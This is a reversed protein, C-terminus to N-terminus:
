ILLVLSFISFFTGLWFKYNPVIEVSIELTDAIENTSNVLNLHISQKGFSIYRTSLTTEIQLESFPELSFSKSSFEVNIGIPTECEIRLVEKTNGFNEIKIKFKSSSGQTFKSDLLLSTLSLNHEKGIRLNYQTSIGLTPLNVFMSYNGALARNAIFKLIIDISSRHTLNKGSPIYTEIWLGFCNHVIELEIKEDTNGENSIQLVGECTGNWCVESPFKPIVIIRKIADTVFVFEISDKENLNTKSHLIVSFICKEGALANEPCTVLLTIESITQADISLETKNLSIDWASDNWALDLSSNSDFNHNFTYDYDSYPLIELFFDEKYNGFNNVILGYQRTEKPKIMFESNDKFNYEISFYPVIRVDIVFTTNRGTSYSCAYITIQTFSGAKIGKPPSINVYFESSASSILTFKNKSIELNWDKAFISYITYSDAFDGDNKIELQISVNQEPRLEINCFPMLTEKHLITCNYHLVRVTNEFINNTRNYEKLNEKADIIIILNRANHSPTWTVSIESCEGVELEGTQKKAFEIMGPDEYFSIATSNSKKEGLNEIKVKLEASKKEILVPPIDVSTIALDARREYVNVLMTLNCQAYDKYEGNQNGDDPQENYETYKRGLVTYSILYIGNDVKPISIYCEVIAIEGFELNLTLENGSKGINSETASETVYFRCEWALPVSNAGLRFEGSSWNNFVRFRFTKVTEPDIRSYSDNGSNIPVLSIGVRSVFITREVPQSFDLGDYGRAYIRHIGESLNRVDINVQWMPLIQTNQSSLGLWFDKDIRIQVELVDDSASGYVAVDDVVVSGDSPNVIEIVPEVNIVSLSSNYANLMEDWSTEKCISLTCYHETLTQPINITLGTANRFKSIDGHGEAIRSSLYAKYLKDSSSALTYDPVRSFKSSLDGLDYNSSGDMPYRSTNSLVYEFLPKLRSMNQKLKQSFFNLEDFVSDLRTLNWASLAYYDEYYGACEQPYIKSYYTCFDDVIKRAFQEPTITPNEIL